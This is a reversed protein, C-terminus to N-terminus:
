LFVKLTLFHQFILINQQKVTLSQTFPPQHAGEDAVKQPDGTLHLSADVRNVTM